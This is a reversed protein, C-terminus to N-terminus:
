SSLGAAVQTAGPIECGFSVFSIRSALTREILMPLVRSM